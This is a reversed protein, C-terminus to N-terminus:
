FYCHHQHNQWPRIWMLSSETCAPLRNQWSVNREKRRSATNVEQLACCFVNSFLLKLPLLTFSGECFVCLSFVHQQTLNTKCHFLLFSKWFKVRMNSYHLNSFNGKLIIVNAFLMGLLLNWAGLTILLCSDNVLLSWCGENLSAQRLKRSSGVGNNNVSCTVSCSALLM